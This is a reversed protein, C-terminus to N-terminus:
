RLTTYIPMAVKLLLKPGELWASSASIRRGAPTRHGTICGSSVQTGCTLLCSHQPIFSALQMIVHVLHYCKHISKIRTSLVGFLQAKWKKIEIFRLYTDHYIYLIYWLCNKYIYIVHETDLKLFVIMGKEFSFKLSLNTDLHVQYLSNLTLSCSMSKIYRSADHKALKLQSSDSYIGLSSSLSLLSKTCTFLTLCLLFEQLETLFSGPWPSFLYYTLIRSGQLM